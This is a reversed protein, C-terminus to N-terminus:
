RWPVDCVVPHIQDTKGLVAIPERMSARLNPGAHEGKALAEHPLLQRHVGLRRTPEGAEIESQGRPGGRQVHLPEEAEREKTLSFHGKKLRFPVQSTGPLWIIYVYFCSSVHVTDIFRHIQLVLWVHGFHTRRTHEQLSICRPSSALLGFDGESGQWERLVHEPSSAELM